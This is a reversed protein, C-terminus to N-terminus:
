QGLGLYKIIPYMSGKPYPSRSWPELTQLCSPDKGGPPVLLDFNRVWRGAALPIQPSHLAYIINPSDLTTHPKPNLIQVARIFMMELMLSFAPASASHRFMYTNAVFYASGHFSARRGSGLVRPNKLELLSCSGLEKWNPAWFKPARYGQRWAVEREM